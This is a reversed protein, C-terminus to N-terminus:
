FRELFATGRPLKRAAVDRFRPQTTVGLGATKGGNASKLRENLAPRRIEAMNSNLREAKTKSRGLAALLGRAPAAAAHTM